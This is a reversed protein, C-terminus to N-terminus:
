QVALQDVLVVDVQLPHDDNEDHYLYADPHIIITRMMISTSMQTSSWREWWSLPLCRPPVAALTPCHTPPVSDTRRDPTQTGSPSAWCKRYHNIGLGQDSNPQFTKSTICMSKYVNNNTLQYPLFLSLNQILRILFNLQRASHLLTKVHSHRTVLHHELTHVVCLPQTPDSDPLCFDALFYIDTSHQNGGTRSWLV